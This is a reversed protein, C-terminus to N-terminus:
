SVWMCEGGWVCVRVCYVAWPWACGLHVCVAGRVQMSGTTNDGRALISSLQGNSDYVPLADNGVAAVVLQRQLKGGAEGSGFPAWEIWLFNSPRRLEFGPHRKDFRRLSGGNRAFTQVYGRYNRLSLPDGFSATTFLLDRDGPDIRIAGANAARKGTALRADKLPEGTALDFAHWGSDSSVALVTANIIAKNPNVTTLKPPGWTPDSSPNSSSSSSSTQHLAQHLALFPLFPLMWWSPRADTAAGASACAQQAGLLLVAALLCCM